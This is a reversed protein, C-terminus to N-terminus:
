LVFPLQLACHGGKCDSFAYALAWDAYSRGEPLQLSLGPTIYAFSDPAFKKNIKSESNINKATSFQVMETQFPVCDVTKTM